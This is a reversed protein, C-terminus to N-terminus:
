NPLGIVHLAIAFLLLNASLLLCFILWRYGQVKENHEAGRLMPVWGVFGIAFFTMAANYLLNVIMPVDM